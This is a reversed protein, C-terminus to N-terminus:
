ETVKITGTLDSPAIILQEPVINVSRTTQYVKNVKLTVTVTGEAVGILVGGKDVTAIATNDVSWEVTKVTDEPALTYQLVEAEGVMLEEVAAIVLTYSRNPCTGWVPMKEATLKNSNIAFWSPESPIKAVCWWSLDQEFAACNALMTGMKTVNSVDWAGIPQNFQAAGNFMFEMNTVKSTDWSSIDQNFAGTTEFMHSMDTVNSTNWMSIDQNFNSAGTFMSRMNTVLSTDWQSLDDNFLIAGKFMETYNTLGAPERSPVDVLKACNTFKVGTYGNSSWQLVRNVLGKTEINLPAETTPLVQIYYLGKETYNHSINAGAVLEVVDGEGLDVRVDETTSHNTITLTGTSAIDATMVMADADFDLETVSLWISTKYSKNLTLYVLTSGIAKATVLGRTSVSLISSDEVTWKEETVEIEPATTYSLRTKLGLGITTKDAAITTVLNMNPCTGWVPYNAEPFNVAGVAFMSPYLAIKSVCWLALDQNFASAGEFMSEMDTVNSVNWRGIPQNFATANKFMNRMGVVNSTDWGALPQNFKVAGDFLYSMENINSVNWTSLDQNFNVCRAFMSTMATLGQPAYSPVKTLKTDGFYSGNVSNGFAIKNTNGGYWSVVEEIEGYVGIETIDANALPAITIISAETTAYKHDTTSRTVEENGDGWNIRYDVDGPLNITVDADAASNVGTTRITLPVLAEQAAVVRTASYLGNIVVTITAEGEAMFFAEGSNQDIAVIAPSSSTWVVSQIPMEPDLRATLSFSEGVTFPGTDGLITAVADRLPCMGWRPYNETALNFSGFNAPAAAIKTVCWWRLDQNFQENGNFMGTMNSVNSVNWRSIDRNFIPTTGAEGAFMQAMTTVNSTNWGGITGNFLVASRFMQEMNSVNATNWTDLNQNFGYARDFMGKMTTVKSTDWMALPRNFSRANAFMESLDTAATITWSGIPQNFNEAGKFMRSFNVVKSVNWRSIDRNFASAGEFMGSMDTIGSTDWNTIDANFSIANRFLGAYSTLGVPSINPVASLASPEGLNLAKIVSGGWSVISTLMENYQEGSAFQLSDIVGDTFIKVAYLGEEAYTHTYNTSGERSLETVTGDGWDVSSALGTGTVIFSATLKDPTPSLRLELPSTDIRGRAARSSEVENGMVDTARVTVNFDGVGTFTLTPKSVDKFEGINTNDTSYRIQRITADLPTLATIIDLTSNKNGEILSNTIAIGKVPMFRVLQVENRVQSIRDGYFPTVGYTNTSWVGLIDKPTGLYLPVYYDDDTFYVGRSQRLTEVTAISGNLNNSINFSGTPTSMVYPAEDARVRFFVGILKTAYNPDEVSMEIDAALTMVKGTADKELRYENGNTIYNQPGVINPTEAHAIVIHEFPVDAGGLKFSLETANDVSGAPKVNASFHATANAKKALRIEISKGGINVIKFLSSM